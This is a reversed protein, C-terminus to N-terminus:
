EEAAPVKNADPPVVGIANYLYSLIYYTQLQDKLKELSSLRQDEWAVLTERCFVHQPIRRSKGNPAGAIVYTIRQEKEDWSYNWLLL